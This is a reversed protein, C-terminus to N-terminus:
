ELEHKELWLKADPFGAKAAMQYWQVAQEMDGQAEYYEALRYPAYM